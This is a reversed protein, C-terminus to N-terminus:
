KTVKVRQHDDVSEQPVDFDVRMFIRKDAM